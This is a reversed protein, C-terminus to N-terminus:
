SIWSFRRSFFSDVFFSSPCLRHVLLLDQVFFFYLITSFALVHYILCLYHSKNKETTYTPTSLCYLLSVFVAVKKNTATFYLYSFCLYSTALRRALSKTCYTHAHLTLPIRVSSLAVHAHLPLPIRIGRCHAAYFSRVQRCPENRIAGSM